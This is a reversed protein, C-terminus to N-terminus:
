VDELQKLQWLYKVKSIPHRYHCLDKYKVEQHTLITNWNSKYMTRFTYPASKWWNQGGELSLKQRFLRVCSVTSVDKKKPYTCFRRYSWKPYHIHKWIGQPSQKPGYRCKWSFFMKSVWIKKIRKIRKIM